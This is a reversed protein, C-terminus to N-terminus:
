ADEVVLVATLNAGAGPSAFELRYKEDGLHSLVARQTGDATMIGGAVTTFIDSVTEHAYLNYTFNGSPKNTLKLYFVASEYSNLDIDELATVGSAAPGDFLTITKKAM